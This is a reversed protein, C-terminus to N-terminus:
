QIGMDKAVYEQAQNIQAQTLGAVPVQTELAALLDTLAQKQTKDSVPIRGMDVTMLWDYLVILDPPPLKLSWRDDSAFGGTM